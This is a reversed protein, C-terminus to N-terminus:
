REALDGFARTLHKAIPARFILKTGMRVAPLGKLHPKKTTESIEPKRVERVQVDM